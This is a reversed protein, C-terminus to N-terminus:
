ATVSIRVISVFICVFARLYMCVSVFDVCL